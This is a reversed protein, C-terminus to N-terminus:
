ARAQEGLDTILRALRRVSTADGRLEIEVQVGVGRWRAKIDRGPVGAAVCAHEIERRLSPWAFRGARFSTRWEIRTPTEIDSM